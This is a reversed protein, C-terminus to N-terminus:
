DDVNKFNTQFCSLLPMIVVFLEFSQPNLNDFKVPRIKLDTDESMFTLM